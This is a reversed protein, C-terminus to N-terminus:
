DIASLTLVCDAHESAIALSHTAFLFLPSSGAACTALASVLKRQWSVHLSLEPEDIAIISGVRQCLLAAVMMCLFHYEGSSLQEETLPGQETSIVLGRRADIMVTKGILFEAMIAEFSQLRTAILDRARQANEQAEVYTEILVLQQPSRYTDSDLLSDLIALQDEELILGFRKTQSYTERIDAIRSKLEHATPQTVTPNLRDLIRPLFGLSEERFFRRYNVQADRVFEAVRDALSKPRRRAASPVYNQLVTREEATLRDRLPLRDLELLNYHVTGLIPLAVDRIADISARHDPSYETRQTTGLNVSSANYTMRLPFETSNLREIGVEDGNSLKLSASRFPVKRFENFDLRLMGRIMRLITTKGTGNRGSLILVSPDQDKGGGAPFEIEFSPGGFLGDIEFSIIRLLATSLDNVPLENVPNAM